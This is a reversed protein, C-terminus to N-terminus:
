RELGQQHLQFQAPDDGRTVGIVGFVAELIQELRFVQEGAELTLALIKDGGDDLGGTARPGPRRHIEIRQVFLMLGLAIPHDLRQIVELFLTPDLQFALLHGLDVAQQLRIEVTLRQTSFQM